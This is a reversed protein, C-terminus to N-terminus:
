HTKDLIGRIVGQLLVLEAKVLQGVLKVVKQMSPHPFGMGGNRDIDNFLELQRPSSPRM